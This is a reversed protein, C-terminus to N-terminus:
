SLRPHHLGIWGPGDADSSKLNPDMIHLVDAEAGSWLARGLDLRQNSYPATCVWSYAQSAPNVRVREHGTPLWFILAADGGYHGQFRLIIDRLDTELWREADEPTLLDLCADIGAVIVADGDSSPLIEPWNGALAFLQRLSVFENPTTFGALAASNWLLSIGRRQWRSETLKRM